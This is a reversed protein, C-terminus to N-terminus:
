DTAAAARTRGCAANKSKATIEVLESFAAFFAPDSKRQEAMHEGIEANRNTKQIYYSFSGCLDKESLLRKDYASKIVDLAGLFNDLETKNAKGGHEKM